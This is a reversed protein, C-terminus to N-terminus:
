GIVGKMARNVVIGLTEYTRGTTLSPCLGVSDQKDLCACAGTKTSPIVAYPGIPQRVSNESLAVLLHKHRQVSRSAECVPMRSPGAIEGNSRSFMAGRLGQLLECAWEQARQETLKM